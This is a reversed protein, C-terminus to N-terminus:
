SLIISLRPAIHLLINDFAAIRQYPFNFDASSFIRCQSNERCRDHCVLGNQNVIQRIYIIDIHQQFRNLSDSCHNLSNVSVCNLNVSACNCVKIYFIIIDLLDSCRVIKQTRHKSLVLSCFHSQRASAIDSASRDILMQLSEACQTRIHINLVALDHCFCLMQSSCM